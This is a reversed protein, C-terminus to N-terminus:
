HGVGFETGFLETVGVVAIQTGPAPGSKLIAENGEISEVEVPQRLFTRPAPNTYIFADGEAVYIIASYPVISKAPQGEASGAEPAGERVPATEVALREMAKETLTLKHFEEGEKHDVHAPEVKTYTSKGSCGALGFGALAVAAVTLHLSHRM